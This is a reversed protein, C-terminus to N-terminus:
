RETNVESAMIVIDSASVVHQGWQPGRRIYHELLQVRLKGNSSYGVTHESKIKDSM